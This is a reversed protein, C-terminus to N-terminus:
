PRYRAWCDPTEWLTIETFDVQKPMKELLHEYIYRALNETSPNKESFDDMENVNNLQSLPAVVDALVRRFLEFDMVLGFDDLEKSGATARVRWNHKHPQESKGGPLVLYHGAQFTLVVSIDYM